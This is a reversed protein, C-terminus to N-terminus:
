GGRVINRPAGAEYAAINGFVEAFLRERTERASWGVHPTILLNDLARAAEIIPLRPVPPEQSVVDLAAGAIRREGLARVLAAEDVLGGRATNILISTPKMLALSEDNIMAKTEVTLPCHLTVIDAERLVEQWRVRGEGPPGCVGPRGSILIEM